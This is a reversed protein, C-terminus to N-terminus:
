EVAGDKYRNGQSVERDALYANWEMEKRLRERHRPRLSQEGLKQIWAEAAERRGQFALHHILRLYDDFFVEHFSGQLLQGAYLNFVAWEEQELAAQVARIQTRYVAEDFTTSDPLRHEYMLRRYIQWQRNDSRTELAWKKMANPPSTTLKRAAEVHRKAVEANGTQAYADAYLLQLDLTTDELSAVQQVSDYKRAELHRFSWETKVAALSDSLKFVKDVTELMRTTDGRIEFYRYKDWASALNSVTHPCPKELLSPIAYIRSARRRDVSDVETSDLHEHWQKVMTEWKQPYAEIIDGTRYAQKLMEVPFRRLLYQVFSGSTIYNVGSRGSYFGWPSFALRLTNPGPYPTQSAVVQDITTTPLSGGTLAVATGEILGISWSANLLRNGFQKAAVHVLEHELSGELQQQAIHLQDQELWVPVYSTYKAGVLQKKQWPNAYLYSEIKTTPDAVDLDFVAEIQELYFEHERATMQVEYESYAEQDYYLRFRETDHSGGLVEQIHGPPSLIGTEAMRIYSFGLFLIALGVMWMSLRDESLSPLHWLLLVWCMTMSRFFLVAASLTVTEDYIPGPWGGWVHNFFYVQPYNFFEFVLVGVGILLLIVTTGIRRYPCQWKRMLRGISYGFFVSPLPFLLWFALGHVSFCGSFVAYLLLPLGALYLYGALFLANNFDRRGSASRCGRLGAWFCGVLAALIASEFHFDGLLPVFLLGGGALLSLFVGRWKDGITLSM